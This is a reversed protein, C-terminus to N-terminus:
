TGLSHLFQKIAMFIGDKDGANGDGFKGPAHHIKSGDLMLYIRRHHRITTQEGFNDRNVEM